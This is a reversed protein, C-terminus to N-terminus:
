PHAFAFLFLLADNEDREADHRRQDQDNEGDTVPPGLNGNQVIRNCGDVADGQGDAIIL